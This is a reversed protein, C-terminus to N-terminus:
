YKLTKHVLGGFTRVPVGNSGFLSNQISLLSNEIGGISRRHQPAFRRCGWCPMLGTEEIEGAARRRRRARGSEAVLRPKPWILVAEQLGQVSRVGAIRHDGFIHHRVDFASARALTIIEEACLGPLWAAVDRRVIRPIVARSRKSVTDRAWSGVEISITDREKSSASNV